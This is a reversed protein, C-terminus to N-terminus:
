SEKDLLRNELTEIKAKLEEVQIRYLEEGVMRDLQSANTKRYRVLTEKLEKNEDLLAEYMKRTTRSKKKKAPTPSIESPSSKTETM